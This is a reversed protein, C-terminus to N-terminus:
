ARRAPEVTELGDYPNHYGALDVSLRRTTWRYGVEHAQLSEAPMSPDGNIDVIGPRGSM